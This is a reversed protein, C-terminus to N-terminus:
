HLTAVAMRHMLMQVTRWCYNPLLMNIIIVLLSLRRIVKIMVHIVEPKQEILEKLVPIDGIRAANIILQNLNMEM